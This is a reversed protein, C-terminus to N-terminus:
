GTPNMAAYEIETTQVQHLENPHVTFPKIGQALTVYAVVDTGGVPTSM